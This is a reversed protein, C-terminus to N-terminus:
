SKENLVTTNNDPHPTTTQNPFNGILVRIWKVPEDGNLLVSCPKLWYAEVSAVGVSTDFRDYRIEGSWGWVEDSAM